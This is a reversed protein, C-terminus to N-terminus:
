FTIEMIQKNIQETEFNTTQIVFDRVQRKRNVKFVQDHFNNLVNRFEIDATIIQIYDDPYNPDLTAQITPQEEHFTNIELEDEIVRHKLKLIEVRRDLLKCRLQERDFMAVILAKDQGASRKMAPDLELIQTDGNALCVALYEGDPRFKAYLISVPFKLSFIPKRQHLLLDWFDLEGESDGTVFLSCRRTSWTGCLIQYKKKFSFTSPSGKCEETWMKACWDGTILFNKVLFRNREITRIPGHFLRYNGAGFTTMPTMGRRNGIFISGMDSGIIYRIPITYEFELVTVGHSRDRLQDDNMVPDLLFLQKPAKLDRGDWYKISGDYSGTYFETNTKSHVWCLASVPERHAAELPCTDIPQGAQRCNWLSIKGSQLGGAIWTEDARCYFTKLVKEDSSFVILPKLPNEVNWIYFDNSDRPTENKALHHAMLVQKPKEKKTSKLLSHGRKLSSNSHVVMFSGVKNPTWDIVSIPRRNLEPDHFINKQRSEFRRKIDEGLESPLDLFFDEYINLANNEETVGVASSILDLVQEGWNDDREIKKRYRLTAEEDNINVDKPWGGEYHYLGHEALTVNETKMESLAQQPALQTSQYVPNRLIYNYRQNRSPNISAMLQNRDSFMCQRGFRRREWTYIYQNDSHM